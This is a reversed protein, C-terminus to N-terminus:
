VNLELQHTKHLVTGKIKTLFVLPGFPLMDHAQTCHAVNTSLDAIIGCQTIFDGTLSLYFLKQALKGKEVGM